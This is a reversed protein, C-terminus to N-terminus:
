TAVRLTKSRVSVRPLLITQGIEIYDSNSLESNLKQIQRIRDRDFDGLYQTALDGLSGILKVIVAFPVTNPITQPIIPRGANAQIGTAPKRPVSAFAQPYAAEHSRCRSDPAATFLEERLGFYQLLM